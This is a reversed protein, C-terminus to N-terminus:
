ITRNKLNNCEIIKCLVCTSEFVKSLMLENVEEIQDPLMIAKDSTLWKLVSKEDKIDGKFKLYEGNRFYGLSPFRSNPKIFSLFNSFKNEFCFTWCKAKSKFINKYREFVKDLKRKGKRTPRYSNQCICNWTWWTHYWDKRVNRCYRPMGGRRRRIACM